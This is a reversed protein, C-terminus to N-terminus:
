RVSRIPIVAIAGVLAVVAGIPFLAVYGHFLLVIGGALAPGIAQPLTAAINIVGLDKAFEHKSPLVESVLAQDVSLYAGFGLGSVLAYAFMGIETPVLLPILLAVAMIAGALIAVPKRRGIRDSIVGGLPTSILIGILTFAGVIGVAASADIGLGIYDQLIYLLYGSVLFYGVFLLLRGTFAWFFDPNKVPNVWFTQLFTAVSFKALPEGISSAEPNILIFLVIVVIAIGAFTLYGAPLDHLFRAGLVQGGIAGFLSGFGVLASFVGRVSTPVRDPLIASLPGQAFNYAIQAITWAIAIAVISNTTALGVLALGGVLVGGLIWPTRRGFRSRTRDSVLGAIPQALMAAIAGITVIIALNAVKDAKDIGQVQLPLLVGPIAGYVMFLGLNAVLNTIGLKRLAGTFRVHETPSEATEESTSSNTETAM